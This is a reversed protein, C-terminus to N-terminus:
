IFFFSLFLVIVCKSDKHNACGCSVCITTSILRALNCDLLSSVLFSDLPLLVLPNTYMSILSQPESNETLEIEKIMKLSEINDDNSNDLIKKCSVRSISQLFSKHLFISDFLKCCEESESNILELIDESIICKTVNNHSFSVGDMFSTICSCLAILLHGYCDIKDSETLNYSSFLKNLNKRKIAKEQFGHNVFSSKSCECFDSIRQTLSHSIFIAASIPSLLSLDKILIFLFFLSKCNNQQLPILELLLLYFRSLLNIILRVSDKNIIERSEIEEHILGLQIGVARLIVQGFAIQVHPNKLNILLKKMFSTTESLSEVLEQERDKKMSFICFEIFWFSFHPFSLIVNEIEIIWEM